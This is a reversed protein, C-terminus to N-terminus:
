SNAHISGIILGMAAGARLETYGMLTYGAPIATGRAVTSLAGTAQSMVLSDGPNSATQSLLTFYGLDAIEGITDDPLTMTPNLGLFNAYVKPNVLVGLLQGVGGAMATGESVLTYGTAGIVNPNPSSILQYPFASWPRNTYQLEGQIGFGMIRNVTSQFLAM